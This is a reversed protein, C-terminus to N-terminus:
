QASGTIQFAAWYFPHSNYTEKVKLQATRLGSRKDIKPLSKYFEKMLISTARDEVKWLSSVISSAGAYLFGRTFGVVEDGNALKGLATECASLTVMDAPLNMGYLEGVTLAGENDKDEALLLASSLPKEPYFTGHTAFHIYRFQGGFQKVATETADKRILLKSRTQGKTIVMAENEAWPLDYRSNGLDPNGFALLSGVYGAKRNILFKLVSASPLVRINYRDIVYGGRSYLASFPLYHLVGHPVITLNEYDIMDAIPQFLREYLIQGEVKFQDSDVNVINKRFAQVQRRLGKMDQKVAKIGGRTLVFTFLTEDSNFYEVLTEKMPLMRRIEDLDPPTVTVLSALEPDTHCIDDKLEIVIGRQRSTRDESVSVDQINAQYEVSDLKVVLDNAKSHFQKRSALIDVLARAKAREVYEFAEDYRALSFLLSVIQRYADQKDGVFGIKNTETSINSRQQEIVEIAQRYYAIAHETKNEKEAIRGMDFLILCFIDGNQATQPMQLLQKYGTGADTLNGTELLCRNLMYQKPLEWYTFLSNGAVSAGTILDVAAKFGKSKEDQRIAALAQPYDELAMYIKALGIYKDSSMLTDPYHTSVARLESAYREAMQEEGLLANVLGIVTLAYIKMQKYARKTNTLQYAIEAEAKAKKFDGLDIWAVARMLAPASRFDFVFLKYDGQDVNKQLQDLCPFLKKYDKVKSYAYCLYFLQSFPVERPDTIREEMLQKMETFRSQQLLRTEKPQMSVCGVFFLIVWLPLYIKKM